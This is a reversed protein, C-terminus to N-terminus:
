GANFSSVIICPKTYTKNAVGILKVKVDEISCWENEYHLVTDNVTNVWKGFKFITYGNPHIKRACDENDAIVIASDYTDYGINNERWIKYIKM